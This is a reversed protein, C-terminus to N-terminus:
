PQGSAARRRILRGVPLPVRCGPRSETSGTGPWTRAWEHPQLAARAVILEIIEPWLTAPLQHGLGPFIHLLAGPITGALTEAAAPSILPDADGHIVATPCRIGALSPLRDPASIIAAPQRGDRSPDPDRDWMQGAVQSTRDLDIPYLPGAFRTERLVFQDIAEQRSRPPEGGGVM